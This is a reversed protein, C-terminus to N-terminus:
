FDVSIWCALVCSQNFLISQDTSIGSCNSLSCSVLAKELQRPRTCHLRMCILLVISRNLIMNYRYGIAFPALIIVLICIVLRSFARFSVAKEQQTQAASSDM